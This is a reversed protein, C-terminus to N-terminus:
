AKGAAALREMVLRKADLEALQAQLAAVSEQAKAVVDPRAKAAFAPSALRGAAVTLEAQLKAAQKALRALEKAPELLGALPLVVQLGDAVLLTLAQGEESGPPPQAVFALGAPELRALAALVPAEDALAARLADDAVVFSAPVRRAPEVGYEARANRVSRVAAQLAAFHALSVACAPGGPPPAPAAILAAGRHPISQWVEETVYPLFPHLLRLTDDLVARLVARSAAAAAADSGALRAKCAELYWDAYETWFFDAAARGAEGFDFRAHAAHVRDTTEHLRSLVWREALPLPALSAADDFRADVLAALEAAPLAQLSLLALKGANWVKNTLNRNAALRDSSLSLDQGASSGTALTFRLADAGLEGVCLLPDVVNGLSKSMKRGKDDRVLGHLFVTSFPVRGTLAMGLMVMRAVWFFLIDHGTEMVTTPYFEALADTRQPWGLTSFPWLGSSFWTDLVDTEQTLAVSPGHAARAAVLAAAEDRAVVFRPTAGKGDVALAAAAAAADDHVYWVPIRHGWWLQRSVCWDTIGTLWGGYVREFRAPM